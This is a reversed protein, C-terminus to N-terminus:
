PPSAATPPPPPKVRCPANKPGRVLPRRVITLPPKVGGASRAVEGRFSGSDRNLPALGVLASVQNRGLGGLEPLSAMLTSSAVPGVDPVSRLLRDREKMDDDHNIYESIQGGIQAIREDLWKIHAEVSDREWGFNAKELRTKERARDSV